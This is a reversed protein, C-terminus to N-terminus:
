KAAEAILPVDRWRAANSVIVGASYVDERILEQLIYRGKREIFRLNLPDEPPKRNLRLTNM